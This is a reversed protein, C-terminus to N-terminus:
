KNNISVSFYVCRQNTNIMLGGLRDQTETQMTWKEWDITEKVKHGGAGTGPVGQQNRMFHTGVNDVYLYISSYIYIYM